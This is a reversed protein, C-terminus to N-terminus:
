RTVSTVENRRASAADEADFYNDRKSLVARGRHVEFQNRREVIQYPGVARRM